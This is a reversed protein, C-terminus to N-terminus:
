RIFWLKQNYNNMWNPKTSQKFFELKQNQHCILIFEFRTQNRYFTSYKPIDVIHICKRCKMWIREIQKMCFCEHTHTNEKTTLIPQITCLNCFNSKMISIAPPFYSILRIAIFADFQSHSTTKKRKSQVCWRYRIDNKLLM